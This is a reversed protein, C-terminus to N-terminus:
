AKCTQICYLTACVVWDCDLYTLEKKAGAAILHLWTFGHSAGLADVHTWLIDDGLGQGKTM